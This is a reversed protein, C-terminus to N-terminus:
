KKQAISKDSAIDQVLGEGGTSGSEVKLSPLAWCVKSHINPAIRLFYMGTLSKDRISWQLYPLPALALIILVLSVVVSGRLCGVLLGGFKEVMPHWTVKMVKEALIGLLKFILGVIIILLLFTLFDLLTIPLAIAGGIFLAIKHYYQLCVVATGATGILPFIEHSLGDQFAVYSTRVMLIIVLLDVWNIKTIIDM